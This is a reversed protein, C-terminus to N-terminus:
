KTYFNLWPMKKVKNAFYATSISLVIYSIFTAYAAGLAGFHKILIFNLIINLTINILSLYTLYITKKYYFLYGAFVKYIGLSFCGMSIWFVYKIGFQFNKGVFLKFILPSLSSLIIVSVFLIIIYGYSIKVIKSLSNTTDIKLNSFLFPVFAQTFAGDVVSIILAIQYGTNYIGLENTSVLNKIFFRDSSEIIIGGIAHPILPLGFLLILKIYKYNIKFKLYGKKYIIIIGLLSFLIAAILLSYVRGTWHMKYVVILLITLALNFAAQTISLIGYHIPKEESQFLILLIQPVINLFAIIPILLLINIDISSFSRLSDKFLYTSTLFVIFLIFNLLFANFIIVSLDKKNVQYYESQIAGSSSLSILSNFLTVLITFIGLIGYESPSLHSTFIPILIFSIGNNLITTLTYISFSRFLM